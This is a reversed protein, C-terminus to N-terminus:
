EQDLVMRVKRIIDTPSIPKQLFAVGNELVGHQVIADDTYGSMFLVKAKSNFSQIQNFLERGSIGPMVVDTLILHIPNEHMKYIQLAELGDAAELITYGKERLIRSIVTRTTLDDEVVLITEAGRYSDDSERIPAVTVASEEVAPFFIRFTTGKEPESAVTIMGDNQKVIGYVTSLGLGTGKGLEKTTFFPEFIKEQIKPDIGCGTDSVAIMIHTGSRNDAYKFAQSDDLYVNATDVTLRGGKPMADRSNVALNMIIQEIQGPDAKMPRLSPDLNLILEVDEGVLRCLMKDMEKVVHNLNLVLPQIVQRRSFALLQRTLSSARNGAKRIEEIERHLPDDDALRKLAFYSYAEIVILLNNFDHAVGGALRGVAEMKQSQILEKELKIREEIEKKLQENSKLLEATREQVKIELLQNQECLEKQLRRLELHTKVRAHVEEAQFPKTIYDIGGENFAKIKESTEDLASIFIIPIDRLADNAKLRQCVEYGNMEPMNIDLLILDPPDNVAAELALAGRLFLRVQYGEQKLLESLLRLNAPTDDVILVNTTTYNEISPETM